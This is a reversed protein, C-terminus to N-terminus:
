VKSCSSTFYDKDVLHGWKNIFWKVKMQKYNPYILAYNQFCRVSDGQPLVILMHIGDDNQM